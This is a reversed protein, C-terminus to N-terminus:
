RKGLKAKLLDGFTGMKGQTLAEARYTDFDGREADDEAQRISLRVRREGAEIVKATITSGIAFERRLDAGPRTGTEANPITARGGRGKSGAIQVVVGFNEVKEVTGEVIAGVVLRTGRDDGGATAGESALALGVRKKVPDVAVVRVLLPQGITLADQPRNVRAGLESVHLLGEVGAALRVFAGFDALRSVQGAIVRGVPALAEIGSWPDAALSKLSFTIETKDGKADRKHDIAKIQVEVVDGLAVVDEGRVREHSLERLPVLGEIGGVDVFVGFERLQTVRGKKVDGVVLSALTAARSASAERALLARRSVVVNTGDVKTVLFALTQGVFRSTDDVFHSDLQSAPCFARVGALEIEVGGKNVGSVKGEVPTGAQQAVVLHDVSAAGKGFRKVLKITGDTDVAYGKIRDGVAVLVKGNADSLEPREFYAQQKDDLDILVADQGVHGVIGEVEDGVSVRKQKTIVIEGRAFLDKFSDGKTGSM